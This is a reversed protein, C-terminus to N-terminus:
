NLLPIKDAFKIVRPGDYNKYDGCNSDDLSEGMVLSMISVNKFRGDLATHIKEVCGFSPVSLLCAMEIVSAGSAYILQLGSTVTGGTALVDDILVVRSSKTISGVRLTMVEIGDEHYEKNLTDSQILVGANKNSKRLLVFPIGLEIAISPGFLFGRADFGLIHTPPEPFSRYRNVFFDRIMRMCTPSETISGADAFRPINHPSFRPSYWRYTKKIEQALPDNEELSYLLPSITRVSM